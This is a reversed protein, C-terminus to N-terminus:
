DFQEDGFADDASEGQVDFDEFAGTEDSLDAEDAVDGDFPENMAKRRSRDPVAPIGAHAALSARGVSLTSGVRTSRRRGCIARDPRNSRARRTTSVRAFARILAVGFLRMRVSAM